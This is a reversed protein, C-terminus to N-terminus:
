SSKAQGAPREPLPQCQPLRLQRAEECQRVQTDGTPAIFLAWYRGDSCLAVWMALNRYDEQYATREVRQCRKGNDRIARMVGLRQLEDPLALLQDHHPNAIKTAPGEEDPAGTEGCAALALASAAALAAAYRM